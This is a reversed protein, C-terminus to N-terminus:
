DQPYPSPRDGRNRIAHGLVWWESAREDSGAAEFAEAIKRVADEAVDAQSDSLMKNKALVGCAVAGLRAGQMAVLALLKLDDDDM